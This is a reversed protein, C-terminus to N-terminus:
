AFSPPRRLHFDTVGQYAAAVRLMDAEGYLRGLFSLSVPTGDERFGHPVIVSPHGTLNTAVLQTLGTTSPQLRDRQVQPTGELLGGVGLRRVHALARIREVDDFQGVLRDVLGPLNDRTEHFKLHRDGM